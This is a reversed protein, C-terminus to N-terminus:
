ARPHAKDYVGKLKETTLHTYIQTTSLNAHGLLEQVSRLDAGRNLLHTAFSHRLTHPSVGKKIGAITIYKKVINRVGRDTLRGGRKNLFVALGSKERNDLYDRIACIAKDGIPVIREKKGKGMVKIVCGIFDVDELNLGVLESIRIGTSYITELLARDRFGMEDKPLSAEILRSVEEETLFSPLHKDLKPSSLSLIPNTKLYGERTLFKFFSRLTSLRRSVSRAGLSKEKLAALYKRLTLYDVCEVTQEKLFLKFHLLDLQYNLITHRSYNKEIDLYRMFKEIYRDM